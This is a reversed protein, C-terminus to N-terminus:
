GFVTQPMWINFIIKKQVLSTYATCFESISPTFVLNSSYAFLLSFCFTSLLFAFLNFITYLSCSVPSFLLILFFWIKSHTHKSHITRKNNAIALWQATATPIKRATLAIFRNLCVTERETKRAEGGGRWMDSKGRRKSNVWEGLLNLRKSWKWKMWMCRTNESLMCLTPACFSCGASPLHFVVVPFSFFFTLIIRYNSPSLFAVKMAIFENFHVAACTPMHWQSIAGHFICKQM